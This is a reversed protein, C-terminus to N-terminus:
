NKIEDSVLKYAKCIEEESFEYPDNVKMHMRLFNAWQFESFPRFDKAYAGQKRVIGALSRFADNKLGKVNSPLRKPFDALDIENGNQDYCWILRNARMSQWFDEYSLYEWDQIVDIYIKELGLQLAACCLHHHDILYYKGGYGKIVPVKHTQLYDDLAKKGKKKLKDAKEDVQQFGVTIQTPQLTLISEKM